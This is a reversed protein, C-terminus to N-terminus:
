EKRTQREAAKRFARILIQGERTPIVAGADRAFLVLCLENELAEIEDRLVNATIGLLKAANEYDQTEVVAIFARKLKFDIFQPV